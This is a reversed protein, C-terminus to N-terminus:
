SAASVHDQKFGLKEGNSAAREALTTLSPPIDYVAWHHWTSAPADPDDCLLVFSRTDPPADSWSLPPSVDGGDCTVDTMRVHLSCARPTTDNKESPLGRM